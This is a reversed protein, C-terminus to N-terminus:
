KESEWFEETAKLEQAHRLGWRSKRMWKPGSIDDKTPEQKSLWTPSDKHSYSRVTFEDFDEESRHPYLAFQLKVMVIWHLETYILEGARLSWFAQQEWLYSQSIALPNKKTGKRCKLFWKSRNFCLTTYHSKSFLSQVARCEPRFLGWYCALTM